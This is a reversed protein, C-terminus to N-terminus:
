WCILIHEKDKWKSNGSTIEESGKHMVVRRLKYRCKIPSSTALASYCLESRSHLTPHHPPPLPPAGECSTGHWHCEVLFSRAGSSSPVAFAAPAQRPSSGQVWSFGKKTWCGRSGFSLMRGPPLSSMYAPDLSMVQYFVLTFKSRLFKGPWASKKTKIETM